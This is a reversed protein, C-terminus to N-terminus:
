QSGGTAPAPAAPKELEALQEKAFEADEGEPWKKLYEKYGAIADDKKGGKESYYAVYIFAEAAKEGQPWRNYCDKSHAIACDWNEKKRCCWARDLYADDAKGSKNDLQGILTFPPNYYDHLSVGERMFEPNMCIGFDKGAKKGSRSEILPLIVSEITGPLITSRINVVHYIRYKIIYDAIQEAIRKIYALQLSGNENSPTGVCIISIDAPGINNITARLNGSDVAMKIAEKLGPEVIPSKGQNIIGVKVRDIDIGTVKNGSNALCTATICGVYGLGFVNIKM